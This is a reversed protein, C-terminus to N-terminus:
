DRSKLRKMMRMHRAGKTYYVGLDDGEKLMLREAYAWIHYCAFSSMVTIVPAPVAAGNTELLRCISDGIIYSYL